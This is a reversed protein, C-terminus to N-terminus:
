PGASPSRPKDPVADRDGVFEHLDADAAVHCQEGPQAPQQELGVVAGRAGDDVLREDVRVARPEVLIPAPGDVISKSVTSAALPTSRGCSSRTAAINIADCRVTTQQAIPRVWCVWATAVM